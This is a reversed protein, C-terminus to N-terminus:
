TIVILYSLTREKIEVLQRRGFINGRSRTCLRELETAVREDDGADVEDYM